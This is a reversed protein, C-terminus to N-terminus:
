ASPQRAAPGLSRARHETPSVGFRARFTRSLHAPDSLGWRRGVAAVTLHALDPRRLDAWCAQLRRERVYDAVSEGTAAFLKHLYSTSIACGVAVAAPDLHSDTLHEDVFARARALHLSPSAGTDVRSRVVAVYLDAIAAVMADRSAPPLSAADLDDLAAFLPPILAGIGRRTDFRIASAAALEAASLPLLRKPFLCVSYHFDEAMAFEFPQASDYLVFEGPGITTERGEQTMTTSGSHCLAIHFYDEDATRVQRPTRVFSHAGAAIQRLAVEGISTAVIRGHMRPGAEPRVDLAVFQDCVTSCWFDVRDRPAVTSTDISITTM